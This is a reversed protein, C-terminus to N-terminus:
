GQVAYSYTAPIERKVLAGNVKRFGFIKTHSAEILSQGKEASLNGLLQTKAESTNYSTHNIIFCFPDDHKFLKKYFAVTEENIFHHAAKIMDTRLTALSYYPATWEHFRYSDGTQLMTLGNVSIISIISSNNYDYKKYGDRYSAYNPDNKYQSWNIWKEEFIKRNNVWYDVLDEQTNLVTFEVDAIQIRMGTHAKMYLLNPYYKNIRDMCIKFQPYNSLQSSHINHNDPVNALMRQLDIRDHYKEILTSFALFHDRHAHSLYWCSITLKEGERLGSQEWMFDFLADAYKGDADISGYATVGGDIFIWSNDAAHILFTDESATNSNFLFLESKDSGETTYCFEELTASSRDHIARVYGITGGVTTYYVYFHNGLLDSIATYRNGDIENRFTVTYGMSALRSLYEDFESENTKKILHMESREETTDAGTGCSYLTKDLRGHTYAPFPLEWGDSTYLSLEEIRERRTGGIALMNNKLHENLYLQVGVWALTDDETYIATTDNESLFVVSGDSGLQSAEGSLAFETDGILLYGRGDVPEYTATSDSQLTVCLDTKEELRDRLANCLSVVSDSANTAHVIVLEKYDAMACDWDVTSEEKGHNESDKCAAFCSLVLLFTV